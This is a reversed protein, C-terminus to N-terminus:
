NFYLWGSKEDDLPSLTGSLDAPEIPTIEGTTADRKTPVFRDRQSPQPEAARPKLFGSLCGSLDEDRYSSQELKPKTTETPKLFGSLCGSLDEDKYNEVPKPQPQPQVVRPKLFGSLCGSLDEDKYNNEVPESQAQQQQQAQERAALIEARTPFRFIDSPSQAARHKSAERDPQNM